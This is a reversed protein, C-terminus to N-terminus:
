ERQQGRLASWVLGDSFVTGPACTSARGQCGFDLQRLEGGEVHGISRCGRSRAACPDGLEERGVDLRSRFGRRCSGAALDLAGLRGGRVGSGDHREVAEVIGFDELCVRSGQGLCASPLDVMDGSRKTWWALATDLNRSLYTERSATSTRARPEPPADSARLAM